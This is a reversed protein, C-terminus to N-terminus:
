KQQIADFMCRSEHCEGCDACTEIDLTARFRTKAYYDWIKYQGGTARTHQGIFCTEMNCNCLDSDMKEINLTNRSISVMPEEKGKQQVYEFVEEWPKFEGPGMSDFLEEHDKSVM